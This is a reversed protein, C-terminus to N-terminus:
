GRPDFLLALRRDLEPQELARIEILKRPSAHGRLLVLDSPQLDLVSALLQLVAANAEGGEPAARVNVKIADGYRGVVRDHRSGPVVKVRLTAM